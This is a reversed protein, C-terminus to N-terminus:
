PQPLLVPPLVKELSLREAELWKPLVLRSGLREEPEDVAFGPGDTAIEFMVGGPEHFYISRFYVRDIVPTVDFGSGTLTERLAEQEAPGPARFAVHHVSGVSIRGDIEFPVSIVDVFSGNGGDAAVYRFRDGREGTQRYGFKETLLGATREHGEVFLTVGHLGRIAFPAPVPGAIGAGDGGEGPRAALEIPLGDPDTFVIVEEEFRGFPGDVQIGATELRYAWYGLSREPVSFSVATAQGTGRQGRHAGAWTFFTLITGPRGKEDGFYLHHTYPDDHNVTVKVLRLGLVGTYFELNRQPDGAIATIHHIGPNNM